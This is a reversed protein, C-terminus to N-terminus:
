PAFAGLLGHDPNAFGSPNPWIWPFVGGIRPDHIGCPWIGDDATIACACCLGMHGGGYFMALGYGMMQPSPAHVAFGWIVGAMFCLIVIGYNRLLIDPAFNPLLWDGLPAASPIVLCLAAYAFPLVGALGLYLAAKPIHDSSSM